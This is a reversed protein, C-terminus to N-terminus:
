NDAWVAVHEDGGEDGARQGARGDSPGACLLGPGMRWRGCMCQCAKTRCVHDGSLRTQTAPIREPSLEVGHHEGMSRGVCRFGGHTDYTARVSVSTSRGSAEFSM